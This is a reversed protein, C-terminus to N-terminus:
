GGSRGPRQRRRRRTEDVPIPVWEPQRKGLLGGLADLAARWLDQGRSHKNDTGM